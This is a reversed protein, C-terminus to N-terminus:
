QDKLVAVEEKTLYRWTGNDIGDIKINSDAFAAAYTYQNPQEHTGCQVLVISLFLFVFIFYKKFQMRISGYLIPLQM